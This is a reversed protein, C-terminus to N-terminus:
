KKKVFVPVPKKRESKPSAPKPEPLPEPPAKKPKGEATDHTYLIAYPVKFTEHRKRNKKRPAM